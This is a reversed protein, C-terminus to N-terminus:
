GPIEILGPRELDLATRALLDVFLPTNVERIIEPSHIFNPMTNVKVIKIEGSRQLLLDIGLLAYHDASSAQVCPALVPRLAHVLNPFAL